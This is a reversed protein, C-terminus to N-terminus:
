RAGRGEDMVRRRAWWTSSLLLRRVERTHGRLLRVDRRGAERRVMRGGGEQEECPRPATARRVLIVASVCTKQLDEGLDLPVGRPGSLHTSDVKNHSRTPLAHHLPGPRPCDWIPIPHARYAQPSAQPLLRLYSLSPGHALGRGLNVAPRIPTVQGALEGREGQSPRPHYVSGPYGSDRGHPVCASRAEGM